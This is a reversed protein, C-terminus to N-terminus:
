IYFYMHKHFVIGGIAVFDSIPIKLVVTMILPAINLVHGQTRHPLPFQMLFRSNRLYVNANMLKQRMSHSDNGSSNREGIQRGLKWIEQDFGRTSALTPATLSKNDNRLDRGITAELM